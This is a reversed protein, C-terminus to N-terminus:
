AGKEEDTDVDSNDTDSNDTDSNDTDSNDTDSNDTDSNDTSNDTDSSEPGGEGDGDSIEREDEDTKLAKSEAAEREARAKVARQEADARAQKEADEREREKVLPSDETCPKDRRIVLHRLVADNFKFAELLGTLAQQDCEINPYALQRRGWDEIRHITGGAAEILSKYRGMTGSVQESQDPHIMFVVEYHRM